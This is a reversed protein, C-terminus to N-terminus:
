FRGRFRNGRPGPHARRFFGNRWRRERGREPKAEPADSTEVPRSDPPATEVPRAALGPESRPQRRDTMEANRESREVLPAETRPLGGAARAVPEVPKPHALSQRHLRASPSLIPRFPEFVKQRPVRAHITESRPGPHAHVMVQSTPVANPQAAAPELRPPIAISAISPITHQGSASAIQPAPRTHEHAPHMRAAQRHHGIHVAAAVRDSLDALRHVDFRQGDWSAAAAAVAVLNAAAVVGWMASRRRVRHRTPFPVIRGRAQSTRLARAVIRDALDAPPRPPPPAQGLLRDLELDSIEAPSM